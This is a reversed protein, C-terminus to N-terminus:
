VLPLHLRAPRKQETFVDQASTQEAARIIDPRARPGRTPRNVPFRIVLFLCGLPM